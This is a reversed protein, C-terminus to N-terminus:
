VDNGISGAPAEQRQARPWLAITKDWEEQTESLGNDAFLAVATPANLGVELASATELKNKRLDVRM